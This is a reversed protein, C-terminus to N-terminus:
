ALDPHASKWESRLLAYQYESAWAGKFWINEIFHGERRMGVREMLHWSALNAEDCYASVRHLALVDFLYAMLCTVAESAYGQKQFATAFTYGILAQQQDEALVQFACDGIIGAQGRREVAMQTWHGPAGFPYRQMEQLLVMARELPYPATWSQYRAVEPESRYASFAPLDETQLPRLILRASTFSIM